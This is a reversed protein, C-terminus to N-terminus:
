KKLWSIPQNKGLSNASVAKQGSMGRGYWQITPSEWWEHSQKFLIKESLDESVIEDLTAESQRSGRLWMMTKIEDVVSLMRQIQKDM